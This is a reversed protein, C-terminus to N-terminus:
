LLVGGPIPVPAYFAPPVVTFTSLPAASIHFRAAALLGAVRLSTPPFVALVYVSLGVVWIAWARRKGITHVQRLVPRPM